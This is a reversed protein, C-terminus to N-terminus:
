FDPSSPWGVMGGVYRDNSDFALFIAALDISKEGGLEEGGHYQIVTVIREQWKPPAVVLYNNGRTVLDYIVGGDSMQPEGLLDTIEKKSEGEHLKHRLLDDSMRARRNGSDSCSADEHWAKVNFSMDDLPNPDFPCSLGMVSTVFWIFAVFLFVLVSLILLIIKIM